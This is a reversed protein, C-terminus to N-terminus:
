LMLLYILWRRELQTRELAEMLESKLQACHEDIEEKSSAGKREMIQRLQLCKLEIERKKEHLLLEQNPEQSALSRQELPQARNFSQRPPKYSMNKVVYGNTGSGRPTSLGIGNYSM